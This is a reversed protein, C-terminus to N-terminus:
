QRMGQDTTKLRQRIRSQLGETGGVFSEAGIDELIALCQLSAWIIGFIMCYQSTINLVLHYANTIRHHHCYATTGAIIFASLLYGCTPEAIRRTILYLLEINYNTPMCSLSSKLLLFYGLILLFYPSLLKYLLSWIWLIRRMSIKWLLTVIINYNSNANPPIYAQVSGVTSTRLKFMEMKGGEVPCTTHSAPIAPEVLTSTMLTTDKSLCSTAIANGWTSCAMPFFNFDVKSACDSNCFNLSYYWEHVPCVIKLNGDSPEFLTQLESECVVDARTVQFRFCYFWRRDTTTKWTM